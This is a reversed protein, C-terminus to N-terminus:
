SHLRELSDSDDSLCSGSRAQELCGPVNVVVAQVLCALCHWGVNHSLALHFSALMSISRALIRLTEDLSPLVVDICKGPGSVVAEIRLVFIINYNLGYIV